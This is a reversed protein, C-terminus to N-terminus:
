PDQLDLGSVNRADFASLMLRGIQAEAHWWMGTWSQELLPMASPLLAGAAEKCTAWCGQKAAVTKCLLHYLPKHEIDEFSDGCM